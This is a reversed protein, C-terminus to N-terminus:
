HKSFSMAFFGASALLLLIALLPHILVTGGLLTGVWCVAAFAFTIAAAGRLVKPVSVHDSTSMARTPAIAEGPRIKDLEAVLRTADFMVSEALSHVDTVATTSSGVVYRTRTFDFTTQTNAGYVFRPGNIMEELARVPDTRVNQDEAPQQPM